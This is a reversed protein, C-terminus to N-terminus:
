RLKLGMVAAPGKGIITRFGLRKYFRIAGDNGSGTILMVGKVNKNKLTDLLTNMLRTGTGEGQFGENIDIHFHAPYSHSFARLALREAIGEYYHDFGSKKAQRIYPKAQKIFRGFDPACIVYGQATGNEDVAAFCTQPECDIYYDCYSNLLYNREIPEYATDYATNLCVKQMDEKYDPIYPKIELM